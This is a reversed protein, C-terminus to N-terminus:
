KEEVMAQFIKEALGIGGHRSLARSQHDVLLSAFQEEGAGGGFTDLPKGFEAHKLMEALFAAELDQATEWLRADQHSHREPLTPNTALYM